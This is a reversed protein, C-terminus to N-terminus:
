SLAIKQFVRIRLSLSAKPLLYHRGFHFFEIHSLERILYSAYADPIDWLIVGGDLTERKLTKSLNYFDEFIPNVHLRNTAPFPCEFSEKTTIVLSYNLGTELLGEVLSSEDVAKGKLYGIGERADYEGLPIMKEEKLRRVPLPLPPLLFGRYGIFTLFSDVPKDMPEWSLYNRTWNIGMPLPSELVRVFGKVRLISRPLNRLFDELTEMSYTCKLSITTQVFRDSRKYEKHSAEFTKPKEASLFLFFDEEVRGGYSLFYPKGQLLDILDEFSRELFLDCKSIVVCDSNEIQARFIPEDIFNRYEDGSVLCVVTYPVFGSTEFAERITYPDSLGSAEMLLIDVNKLNNLSELLEGIGSCCVCKGEIGLVRLSEKYLRLKDYSVEGYDNVVIGIRGKKYREVLSNLLFTTKGSGLFGSVVVNLKPM